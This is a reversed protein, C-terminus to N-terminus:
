SLCSLFSLSSLTIVIIITIFSVIWYNTEKMFYFLPIKPVAIIKKIHSLIQLPIFQIKNLADCESHDINKMSYIVLKDNLKQYTVRIM